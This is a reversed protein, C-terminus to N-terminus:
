IYNKLQGCRHNKKLPIPVCLTENFFDTLPLRKFCCFIAQIPRLLEDLFQTKLPQQQTAQAQRWCCAQAQPLQM